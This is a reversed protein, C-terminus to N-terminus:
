TDWRQWHFNRDFNYHWHAPPGMLAFGLGCHGMLAIAGIVIAAVALGHGDRNHTHSMGSLAVIGLILGPLALCVGFCPIPLLGVLALIFGAMALGHYSTSQPYPAYAPPYSLTPPPPGPPVAPLLGPVQSAAMWQVLTAHWVLTAPHLARNAFLQRLDGLNMPGTALGNSNYYWNSEEMFM